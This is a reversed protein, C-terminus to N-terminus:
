ISSRHFIQADDLQADPTTNGALYVADRLYTAGNTSHDGPDRVAGTVSIVPPDEFDYRGFIRLTDHPRLVVDTKGSLAADLDVAAEPDLHVAGDAGVLPTEAEV